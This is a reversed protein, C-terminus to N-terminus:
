SSDVIRQVFEKQEQYEFESLVKGDPGVAGSYDKAIYNLMHVVMRPASDSAWILTSSFLLLFAKKM